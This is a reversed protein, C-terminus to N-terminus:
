AADKWEKMFAEHLFSPHGNRPTGNFGERVVVPKQINRMAMERMAEAQARLLLLGRDGADVTTQNADAAIAHGARYYFKFEAGLVAIQASTPPPDLSLKRTVPNSGTEIVRVNPLRGPYGPEWPRPARRPAIGWLHSKYALFGAPTAYDAQDAVLTIAGLLTRPRKEGLALAAAALHRRFDGENAATFVEASNQLSAKLDAVLDAENMTGPM